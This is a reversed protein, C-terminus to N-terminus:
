KWRKKVELINPTKLCAFSSNARPRGFSDAICVQDQAMQNCSVKGFNKAIDTLDDLTAMEVAPKVVGRSVFEIAEWIDQRTGVASGMIRVGQGLTLTPHFSLNQGAPPIGICVLTGLPALFGLAAQYAKDTNAMVLVTAAGHGGTVEKIKAADAELADFYL